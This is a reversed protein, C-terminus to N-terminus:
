PANFSAGFFDIIRICTSNPLSTPLKQPMIVNMHAQSRTNFTVCPDVDFVYSIEIHSTIGKQIPHLHVMIGHNTHHPTHKTIIDGFM